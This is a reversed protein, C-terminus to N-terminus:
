KKKDHNICIGQNIHAYYSIRMRTGNMTMEYEIPYTDVTYVQKCVVCGVLPVLKKLACNFCWLKSPEKWLECKECCLIDCEHCLNVSPKKDKCQCKYTKICNYCIINNNRSTYKKTLITCHESICDKCKTIYCNECYYIGQFILKSCCECHPSTQRAAKECNDYYIYLDRFAYDLILRIVDNNFGYRQLNYSTYISKRVVEQM